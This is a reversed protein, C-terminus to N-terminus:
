TRQGPIPELERENWGAVRRMQDQMGDPERHHKIDSKEFALHVMIWYGFCLGKNRTGDPDRRRQMSTTFSCAPEACGSAAAIFESWKTWPSKVNGIM